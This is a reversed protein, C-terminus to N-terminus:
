GSPRVTCLGVRALADRARRHDEIGEWQWRGLHPQRGLLATELVTAPFADGEEQLLLGLSRAVQRRPLAQIPQGDLRVEGTRPPRLGALIHLLTTKGVGNIGLLAWRQGPRLDLDLGECVQKGGIEVTLGRATLLTASM